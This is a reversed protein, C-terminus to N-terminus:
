YSYSGNKALDRLFKRDREHIMILNLGASTDNRWIVKAIFPMVPLEETIEKFHPCAVCTNSNIAHKSRFEMMDGKKLYNNHRVSIGTPSISTIEILSCEDYIVKDARVDYQILNFVCMKLNTYIRPERRRNFVCEFRKFFTGLM